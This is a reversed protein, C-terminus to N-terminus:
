VENLRSLESDDVHSFKEKDATGSNRTRQDSTKSGAPTEQEPYQLEDTGRGGGERDTDTSWCYNYYVTEVM